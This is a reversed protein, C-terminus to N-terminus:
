NLMPIQQLSSPADLKRDIFNVEGKGLSAGLSALPSNLSRSFLNIMEALKSALLDASRQSLIDVPAAIMLDLGDEREVSFVSVQGPLARSTGWSASSSATVGGIELPLPPQVSQHHVIVGFNVNEPWCTCQKAITSLPVADYPLITLQQSQVQRLLEAVTWSPNITIRTPLFNICPGLVREVGPFSGGRGHFVQGIILDLLGSHQSLLWSLAAKVFNAMTIEPLVYPRAMEKTSRRPPTDRDATSPLNRTNLPDISSLSVGELYQRWFSITDLNENGLRHYVLESFELADPMEHGEYAAIIAEWLIALCSGDYQAHSINLIFVCDPRIPSTVVTFNVIISGQVTSPTLKQRSLQAMYSEPDEDEVLNFIPEVERLVIQFMRHNVTVFITRLVSYRSLVQSCARYLRDVSLSGPFLHSYALPSAENIYYVQSEVAPLIDAVNSRTLPHKGTLSFDVIATYEDETILSFPTNEKSGNSVLVPSEDIIEAWERITPSRLIDHASIELGAERAHSAVKMALISDGGLHFFSDEAGVEDPSLELVETLISHLKRETETEMPKTGQRVDTFSDWREPDMTSLEEDLRRRDTKGAKTRPVQTLPLFMSPVMYGPLAERLQTLVAATEAHFQRTPSGLLSHAHGNTGNIGNVAPTENGSGKWICVVLRPVTTSNSSPSSSKEPVVVQCVVAEKAGPFCRRIHYEIEELEVRQGRIKIQQDKRGEFRLSGDAIVQRVLDGTKYFRCQSSTEPYIDMLWKPPDLFGEAKEDIQDLYGQGVPPGSLILEGVAGVPLLKEHDDKDVVWCHIGLPWGINGPDLDPSLGTRVINIVSCETPGYGNILNCAGHWQAIHSASVPEGLLILNQVWSSRTADLVGAVSPTIFAHTVTFPCSGETLMQSRELETIVCVTAGAMLTTLIEMVSVDFSYSSFQLVRSQPRISFARIHYEAASTYSSHPIMVGKPVGTTGSTFLIYAAQDPDAKRYNRPIIRGNSRKLIDDGVVIVEDSLSKALCSQATSSLILSSHTRCCIEQLRSWPHTHDLPVFTGGAKMVAVMAVATWRSREFCIPICQGVACGRAILYGAIQSSFRDLEKYTFQGDSGSVALHHPQDIARREIIEHVCARAPEPLPPNWRRLRQKDTISLLNLDDLSGCPQRLIASIALDFYEALQSALYASIRSLRYTMSVQLEGDPKMLIYM